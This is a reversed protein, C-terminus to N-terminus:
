AGGEQWLRVAAAVMAADHPADAIAIRRWGSGAAEAARDSIAVLAVRERDPVLARLREAARPSHALAIAAGALSAPAVDRQESAYVVREIVGPRSLPRADAGRLWLLRPPVDPRALLSAGDADGVVAVAFGVARAAQATAEGVCWAPLATLAALGAGGHRLANASTFLIAYFEGADARAWARPRVEFLPIIRPSLGAAELRAATSDAGPQPRVILVDGSM